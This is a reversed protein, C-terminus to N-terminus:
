VSSRSPRDGPRGRGDPPVGRQLRRLRRLGFVAVLAAAPDCEARACSPAGASEEELTRAPVGLGQVFTAQMLDLSGSEGFVEAIVVAPREDPPEGTAPLDVTARVVLGQGADLTVRPDANWTFSLPSIVELDNTFARGFLTVTTSESSSAAVAVEDVAGPEVARLRLTLDELGPTKLTLEASGAEAATLEFLAAGTPAVTVAASSSEVTSAQLDLLEGGCRDVAAVYVPTAVETLVAFAGPLRPDVSSTAQVLAGSALVTAGAHGSQLAVRDVAEGQREVLLEATGPGVVTVAPGEVRLVAPDSSTLQAGDLAGPEDADVARFAVTLRSGVALRKTFALPTEAQFAVVGEAGLHETETAGNGECSLLGAVLLGVAPAATRGSRM